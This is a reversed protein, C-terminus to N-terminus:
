SRRGGFIITSSMSLETLGVWIWAEALQTFIQPMGAQADAESFSTNNSLAYVIVGHSQFNNLASVYDTISQATSNGTVNITLGLGVAENFIASLIEADSFDPNSAKVNDFRTLTADIGWSNNQSVASTADATGLAAKAFIDTATTGTLNEYDTFHLNAGYAVGMTLGTGFNGAAISAVQTGHSQFCGQVTITPTCASSSTNIATGNLTGFITNTKGSFEEHSSVINSDVIAVQQGAGTLGQGHAIDARITQFPHVSSTIAVTGDTALLNAYEDSGVVATRNDTSFTLGSGQGLFTSDSADNATDSTTGVGADTTSGSITDAATDTSLSDSGDTGETCRARDCDSDSGTGTTDTSTVTDESDSAGSTPSPKTGSAETVAVGGAVIAVGGVAATGATGLGATTAATAATTSGAAATTSGAAAAPAAAAAATQTGAMSTNMSNVAVESLARYVTPSPAPPPPVAGPVPPVVSAAQGAAVGQAIGAANSVSVAGAQVTVTTAGNGVVHVTFVTGDISVTATPTKILYTRQSDKGTAFRMVGMNVTVILGGSAASQDVFKDLVVDNDPGLTLKTEDDFVIGAASAPGTSIIENLFVQDGLAIKRIKGQLVGSVQGVFQNVVTSASAVSNQAFSMTSSLVLALTLLSSLTRWFFSIGSSVIM